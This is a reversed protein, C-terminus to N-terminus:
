HSSSGGSSELIPQGPTRARPCHLIEDDAALGPREQIAASMDLSVVDLRQGQGHQPVAEQRVKGGRGFADGGVGHDLLHQLLRWVLFAFQRAILPEPM